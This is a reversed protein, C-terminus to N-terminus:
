VNKRNFNCHILLYQFFYYNAKIVKKLQTVNDETTLKRKKENRPLSHHNTEIVNSELLRSTRGSSKKELDIGGILSKNDPRCQGIVRRVSHAVTQVFNKM